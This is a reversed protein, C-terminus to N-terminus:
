SAPHARRGRELDKPKDRMTSSWTMEGSALKGYRSTIFGHNKEFGAAKAILEAYQWYILQRISHVHKPPM